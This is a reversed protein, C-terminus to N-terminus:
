RRSFIFLSVVVIALVILLPIGFYHSITIIAWAILLLVGSIVAASISGIVIWRNRNYPATSGLLAGILIFILWALLYEIV